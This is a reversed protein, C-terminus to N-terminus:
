KLKELLKEPLKFEGKSRSLEKVVPSDLPGKVEYNVQTIVEVVPSIVTTIALVYLATQPTVAFATLVPIGSTIDPTFEVEADVLQTNLNALGKINMEGAVADMNIDNTVFVGDQIKGSGTISAFAMGKDFVDSFDLKMKRIISDLSFLGLLRAAGGVDSIVGEGFTLDLNGSLTNVQMSWPSGDWEAQTTIEFPAKQIGSDVGFREMLDSNNEGKIHINTSSHSVEDKLTWWGDINLENTGSIVQVKKWELRDNQRQLDVNVKGVNYGQLWFDNIVLTLNPMAKHFKREFESILPRLQKAKEEEPTKEELVKDIAPVYIHLRDLSVSLDYPELYNVRGEIEQSEVDMQWGLNKKRASFDVDHWELGAFTLAQSQVKLRKPLPIIPTNMTDVVSKAGVAPEDAVSIWEDLDFTDTRVLVHHGVVPSIKFGGNGLVLNTATLVPTDHTIDIEAQYKTNPLQLRATISEQNGSAQLSAKGKDGASKALPYPYQSELSTLNSQLDLQYTFGVDNLQLDVGLEWPAHGSLRKLWRQGLYPTLPKVDWDGVADLKVAYGQGANEGTFDISVPQDLIEGGLGSAMIVDDDFKIRGTVKELTMPPAAMEVHNNNLDAFGWARTDKGEDFPINLKFESSVKGSVQIATLAAGVSDVLPSATMYDRVANGSASVKAEIEIHGGEGLNPIRGTIRQANVGMLKASRSDLHMAANEFLLDLQLNTVLPWATDFSFKADELGVWAQFIGDNKQYPYDGLEGYWLLKATHAKGAQVAASLYDTLDQGLALTPLYRWTQGANYVDAEAYFSLFPSANNPFDLRFAGLVQLDPTAATVKDAWLSWGDDLRQWVVDVAGQKIVLPAQFVDGYPLEDDIIQLKATAQTKSGAITANAYNVGPLLEWQKIAGDVLSASYTLSDADQGQAIRIDEIRGRPSLKDLLQTMETSDPLLKAMPSLTAIDLQSVNLRWQEPQWEFAIDLEPWPTDDTRLQLSHGNVQWGKKLPSLKFIGSEIILEHKSGETWSLESPLVEVYADVPKSRHLTIWSNLSVKGQDIGTETQLYRTLWPTVLVNEASVYFEGSVVQLSGHDIFNASVLLSNLSSDALSVEGEVKHNKGQNRWKLHSIDLQREEGSVAQYQVLSNTVTFDELQRLLLSDLKQIVNSQPAKTSDSPLNNGEQQVLSISRIDLNLGNLTLDAIVPKLHIMSQILDFEIEVEEVSLHNEQGALNADINKLSISPHTNRWFGSVGSLTFEFGSGKSVWAEIESKHQNLQPLTIRLATVTIALIVLVTVLLWLLIRWLRTFTSSM